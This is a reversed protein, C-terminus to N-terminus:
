TTFRTPTELVLCFFCVTCWVANGKVNYMYKLTNCKRLCSHMLTFVGEIQDVATSDAHLSSCCYVSSSCLEIDHILNILGDSAFVRKCLNTLFSYNRKKNSLNRQVAVLICHCYMYIYHVLNVGHALCNCSCATLM